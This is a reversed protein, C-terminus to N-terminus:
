TIFHLILFLICQLAPADNATNQETLVIFNKDAEASQDGM